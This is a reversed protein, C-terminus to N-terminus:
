SWDSWAGDPTVTGGTRTQFTLQTGPPVDQNWSIRDLELANLEIVNSEFTGSSPYKVQTVTSPTLNGSGNVYEYTIPITVRFEYIRDIANGGSDGHCGAYSYARAKTVGTWAGARTMQGSDGGGSWLTHWDTDGYMTQSVIDIFWRGYSTGYQGGAGGVAYTHYYFESIDTPSGFNYIVVDHGDFGFDGGGHGFNNGIWTFENNDYAQGASGQNGVETTINTAPISNNITNAKFSQGAGSFSASSGINITYASITLNSGSIKGNVTITDLAKIVAGSALTLTKGADIALSTFNYIGAALTEDITVHKVGDSGTGFKLTDASLQLTTTNNNNFFLSSNFLGTQFASETIYTQDTQAGYYYEKKSSGNEAAERMGYPYYKIRDGGSTVAESIIGDKVMYTTNNKFYTFDKANNNADFVVDTIIADDARKVSSLQGQTYESRSGDPNNIAALESVIINDKMYIVKQTDNLIFTPLLKKLDNIYSHDFVLKGPDIPNVVDPPVYPTTIRRDDRMWILLGKKNYAVIVDDKKLTIYSLDTLESGNLPARKYNSTFLSNNSLNLSPTKYNDNTTLTVKYQIYKAIPSTMQSGFPDTMNDSWDSWAGDPTATNGTRTKFTVQTGAPTTQSWSIKDLWLANLEIVNSEFTGSSPYTIQTASPPVSGASNVYECVPNTYAQLEYIYAGCNGERDGGSNAAATARIAAVNNWNGNQAAQNVMAGTNRGYNYAWLNIWNSSGAYQIDIRQNAGGNPFNGNAINTTYLKYGIQQLNVPASFTNISYYAASTGWDGSGGKSMSSGFGTDFNGDYSYSLDSSSSSGDGSHTTTSEQIVNTTMIGANNITDASIHQGVGTISGGTNINVTYANITLNSGVLKGNVTIAGLCKIVTGSAITLTKGADITLSTFNYIGAALTEDATVRKIGDSGTGFKLTDTSLQLTATNNNIYYSVNNSAGSQFFSADKYTKADSVYYQYEELSGTIQAQISKIFGNDYYLTDTGDRDIVEAIKGNIVKYTADDKIYTFNTLNNNQDFTIEKIVTGDVKTVDVIRSSDYRVKTGSPFYVEIYGESKGVYTYSYKKGTSDVIYSLKKDKTYAQTNGDEDRVLTLGDEYTYTYTYLIEKNQCIESKILNKLTDDYYYKTILKAATLEELQILRGGSYTRKEEKANDSIIIDSGDYSWDYVAGDELTVKRIKGDDYDTIDGSASILRLLKADDYAALSGDPYSVLAKDLEGSDSFTMQKITTGDAKRIEKVQGDEYVIESADDLNISKINGYKDYIRKIGDRDVTIGNINELASLDYSYLTAGLSNTINDILGDSNADAQIDGNMERIEKVRRYADYVMSIIGLKSNADQLIKDEQPFMSSISLLANLVELLSDAQAKASTEASKANNFNELAQNYVTQAQAYDASTSDARAKATDKALESAALDKIASQLATDAQDKATTKIKLDADATNFDAEKIKREQVANDYAIEKADVDAHANDRDTQAIQEETFAKNLDKQSQAVQDSQIENNLGSIITQIAKRAAIKDNLIIEKAALAAQDLALNQRSQTETAKASNLETNAADYISQATIFDNYATTYLIQKEDKILQAKNLNQIATDLATQAADKAADAAALDKIAAQLIIYAQDKAATKIILDDNAANFADEKTQRDQAAINYVAQKADVDVQAFLYENKAQAEENKAQSLQKNVDALQTQLDQIQLPLSVIVAELGQRISVKDDYVVKKADRIAIADALAQSAQSELDKANNLAANAADYAKKADLYNANATDYLSQNTDKIAQADSLNKIAIQLDRYAQDKLDAKDKLDRAAADLIAEKDIRDQKLNDYIIEKASVDKLAITYDTTASAEEEKTKTLQNNASILNQREVQIQSNIDVVISEIEERAKIKDDLIKKKDNKIGPAADLAKKAQSEITRANNLAAGASDYAAKAQIYNNNAINYEIQRANRAARGYWFYQLATRLRQYAQNKLNNKNVLNTNATNLAGEKAKVDKVSDDYAAQKTDIDKIAQDYDSSTQSEENKAQGLQINVNDLQLQLAQIRLNIGAIINEVARRDGIKDDMVTKKADRLNIANTLAADCLTQKASVGQLALTYDTTAAAEEEKTKTLQNNASILNQREVQIQSNINVATLEIAERAKIKDDLIIKKDNGIDIADALAQKAQPEATRADKLAAGAADYAAKAQLYNNNATNYEAQRSNRAAKGYWFYQLATRLRQYAQDKLNTKNVLNTNATNFADEKAKVDKTSDNYAAQKTDVDKIAQDYGSNARSEESKAQTLQINVNDLQLQLAKIRLNIDVIIDEVARRASIKDDMVTKKADRLNIANTLAQDSEAELKKASTVVINADDYVKKAKIYNADTTNYGAQKTDKLIQAAKESQIAGQLDQYAQDRTNTKVTLDADAANFKDDKAQRDQAASDYEVQKADADVQAFLYENKAQAEEMKAQPLQKNADIPLAQIPQIKLPLGSIEAELGKRISVKDDYVTKKADRIAAADALAQSAQTAADMTNNLDVRASDRTSQATVFNDYATTYLTQKEDKVSKTNNFNRIAADLATQAADKATRAAALDKIAAQLATDAQDKAATKIIRDDNAANFADEKAQRDEVASDYVIEKADVDAHANDRDTQAIQEDALAKELDQRAQALAIQDSQIENNLGSIITQIAKRAAIKDDLIAEKAALTTQAAIRNQQTQTELAKAANLASLASDYIACAALYDNHANTFDTHRADKDSQAKDLNQIATNLATQTSDKASAKNSLDANADDLSNQRSQTELEKSQYIALAAEYDARSETITESSIPQGDKTVGALAGDKNYAATIGDKEVTISALADSENLTYRYIVGGAATYQSLSSTITNDSNNKIEFVFASNDPETIKSIVGSDYEIIKGANFEVKTLRNNSDYRSTKKSDTLVTEVINGQGDKKYLCDATQGDSYVISSILEDENYNLTAGDPRIVRTVKGNAVSQITGDPYRIEAGLLNNKEDLILDRLVAGDKKEISAIRSDKYHIVDGAQTTVSLAASSQSSAESEKSLVTQAPATSATAQGGSAGRPGKLDLSEDAPPPTDPAPTTINQAAMSDEIAQKQSIMSEAASQQNQLYSPAFTQSQEQYQRELAASILDGAWAIQNFLFIGAMLSSIIKFAIKFKNPLVM